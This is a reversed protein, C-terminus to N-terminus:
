TQLFILLNTSFTAQLYFGTSKFLESFSMRWGYKWGGCLSYKYWNTSFLFPPPGRVYGQFLLSAWSKSLNFEMSEPCSIPSLTPILEDISFLSIYQKKNAQTKLTIEHGYFIRLGWKKNHYWIISLKYFNLQSNIHAIM